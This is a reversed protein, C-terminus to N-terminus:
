DSDSEDNEGDNEDQGSSCRLPHKAAVHRNLLAVRSFTKRCISCRFHRLGHDQYNDCMEDSMKSGSDSKRHSSRLYTGVRGSGVAPSAQHVTRVHRLLSSSHGFAANCVQCVFPKKKEHVALIHVRLHGERDFSSSCKHCKFPRITSPTRSTPRESNSGHGRSSSQRRGVGSTERGNRAEKEVVRVPFPHRVEINEDEDQDDGDESPEEDSRLLTSVNAELRSREPKRESIPAASSLLLQAHSKPIKGRNVNMQIDTKQKKDSEFIQGEERGEIQPERSQLAIDLDSNSESSLTVEAPTQNFNAKEESGPSRKTPKNRDTSSITDYSKGKHANAMKEDYEHSRGSEKQQANQANGLFNHKLPMPEKKFIATQGQRPYHRKITKSKIIVSGSLNRKIGVSSDLAAGGAPTESTQTTSPRNMTGPLRDSFQKMSMSPPSSNKMFAEIIADDSLQSRFRSPAVQRPFKASNYTPPPPPTAATHQAIVVRPIIDIDLAPLCLRVEEVIYGADSAESRFLAVAADLRAQSKKCPPEQLQKLFSSPKDM